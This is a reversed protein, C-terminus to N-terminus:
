MAELVQQLGERYTPYKLTVGLENKILANGVRKNDSYFSRAMPTMDATDFDVEPPAEVGLLESAYAIVEQPPAPEDDSVNYVAGARPQAMSALVVQAIDGVHARNFVQGPKIVRRSKGDAVKNLPSRGPGYIGPLRFIQVAIGTRAGFALWADEAIVRRKGRESSPKRQASEDIWAGDANGYVGITSLYGVWELHLLTVLMDDLAGLVPDGDAGPAASILLHTIDGPLKEPMVEQAPDFAVAGFGEAQMAAVKEASRASGTISWGDAKLQDSVVRATYGLGMALLHTM